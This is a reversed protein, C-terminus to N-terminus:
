PSRLLRLDDVYLEFAPQSGALWFQLHTVGEPDLATGDELSVFSSLPLQLERWASDAGALQVYQDAQPNQFRVSVEGPPEMRVWFNLSSYATADFLGGPLDLGLFAGFGTTPGAALHAAFQSEGRGTIADFTMRASPGTGDDTSYWWGDPEVANDQDEFDDLVLTSTAQGGAGAGAAGAGAAGVGPAGSSLGSGAHGGRDSELEFADLRGDFCGPLSSLLSASLALSAGRGVRPESLRM